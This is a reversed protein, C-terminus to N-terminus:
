DGTGLLEDYLRIADILVVNVNRRNRLATARLMEWAEDSLKDSNDGASNMMAAMYGLQRQLDGSHYEVRGEVPEGGDRIADISGSAWGLAGEILRMSRSNPTNRTASEIHRITSSSLSAAAALDDQSMKLEGRRKRVATALREAPTATDTM